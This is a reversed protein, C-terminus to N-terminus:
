VDTWLEDGDIVGLDPVPVEPRARRRRPAAAPVFWSPDVAEIPASDSRRRHADVVLWGGAALWLIVQLVDGFRIALSAGYGLHAKVVAGTSSTPVRFSMAWGFAPSPSISKGGVDLKWGGNRTASVYVDTGAVVRGSVGASAGGTLVPLAGALETGEVLRRSLESGATAAGTASPPLIARAPAWAANRYVSYNPDGVEVPYMDTQLGLGALFNNPVPVQRAGSGTPGNAAPVVLYLVGAPALLHGLKTTLRNEVLHLDSALQSSAGPEGQQWDNALTPEGDFSTGYAFGPELQRGALPLADPQGVWLVRYDGDHIDPLFALVSSADTSPLNWRGSGSAALFPISALSLGTGAVAAAVQRWGFRYGPLDLEFAAVGLAASGSLAAAAPALAVEVPLAPIWGRTGAWGVLFFVVAVTWLRAAWELRWGRGILLPLAAAVLLLWEWGGSGFPGTHFRLVEGLGLRGAPGPDPGLVAASSAIVSGSWPMLLILAVFSGGVSLFVMRVAGTWRGALVAGAFLAGGTIPVIYLYAPAVSGAIATLVGLGVLRAVSRELKTKPLPVVASLRILMSIVWPTAAYAVLAGWRGGALANYPLPVVAYFAAAVVQGWRSGWYRATRYAGLPGIILPGLVAVHGATGVAGFLVTSLLGLLAMAPSSPAAVGLGGPQWASWWAGWIAGWGGSTDPLGGIQPLGTGLLSRTGLVVLAVILVAALAQGKWGRSPGVPSIGDAEAIGPESGSAGLPSQFREQLYVRLRSNGRIQLQRLDSDPISRDKQVRRRVGWLQVPNRLAGWLATVAVWGDAPRGQATLTLAEGFAWAIALPLTWLLTHWRYCTLLTRYRNAHVRWLARRAAGPSLRVPRRANLTAELHRVRAAPVVVLRAGAIRARWSLDVDEGNQDILLDFGGIAAFLDARILTAGGPAVLIDRVADHQEQDLEGPEVVNRVAAVKDTTQGVALLRQPDNWLVFKPSAVGANSRFAEEVMLRVADTSLAVDDHCFLYHSAGEVTSLVENAATSFGVRRGLKRVFANPLVRAVAPTPDTASAADVVLVSLNPYDQDAVSKLVEEFWPGPDCTVIVAVVAPAPPPAPDATMRISSRLSGRVPGPIGRHFRGSLRGLHKCSNYLPTM